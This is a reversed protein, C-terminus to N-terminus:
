IKKYIMPHSFLLYINNYFPFIPFFCLLKKSSINFTSSTIYSILTQTYHKLFFRLGRPSSHHLLYFNCQMWRLVDMWWWSLLNLYYFFLKSFITHLLTFLSHSFVLLLLKGRLRETSVKTSSEHRTSAPRNDNSTSVTVTTTTVTSSSSSSSSSTENIKLDGDKSPLSCVFQNVNILLLVLLFKISNMTCLWGMENPNTCFNDVRNRWM